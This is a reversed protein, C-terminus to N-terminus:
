IVLDVRLLQCFWITNKEIDNIAGSYDGLLKVPLKLNIEKRLNITSCLTPLETRLNLLLRM